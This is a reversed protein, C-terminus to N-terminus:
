SSNHNMNGNHQVIGILSDMYFLCSLLCFVLDLGLPPQRASSFLPSCSIALILHCNYVCGNSVMSGLLAVLHEFNCSHYWTFSILFSGLEAWILMSVWLIMPLYVATRRFKPHDTICCCIVSFLLNRLNEWTEKDTSNSIYCYRGWLKKKPWYNFFAETPVQGM